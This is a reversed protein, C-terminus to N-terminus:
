GLKYSETIGNEIEKEIRKKTIDFLYRFSGFLDMFRENIFDFSMVTRLNFLNQYFDM